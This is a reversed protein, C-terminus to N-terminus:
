GPGPGGGGFDFAPERPKQGQGGFTWTFGVFVGRVNGRREVRDRLVPTDIVVVDRFSDLADQVTVVASLKDNIKRRYGLNLMGMAERHGQPTLREGNMFGNLQIFDKPTVQWNLNARGGLSYGSRTGTFGLRRAEIENWYVNGSVNYTVAKTLRGNAVLELGGSRSEGLNERTTLLVGDGLDRVVDTVGDRSQRYYLTALYFTGGGRRQWAAEFSDTVQPGLDPNGERYNFPDVYIRFPNLDYAQPRQVRRSYSASVRQEDSLKYALHLSPYARFYDNEARLKSTVQDIDILV